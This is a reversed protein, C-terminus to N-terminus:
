FISIRVTLYKKPDKRIDGVLARLEAVAENMNEYLERDRLMRGATGEGQSLRGVLDDLRTSLSNLRNFLSADNILRGATGEGTNLKSAVQGVTDTAGGLSRALQDDRLLQGLTGEGANLRRTMTDLNTLASELARYARPDRILRALTGDGRRLEGAVASAAGVFAELDRYLADDTFLRGVTGKGARLDALLHRAEDLSETAREAVTRIQGATPVGEIFGGNELPRGGTSPTIEILPEGLLSLSGITARSETTIRPQHDRHITLGVEVQAGDFRIDSVTGVEVGALRVVAGSKLGQVDAFRTRLRYQQWFFGGAGGVVFILTAALTLALVAVIGIKLEAWVVSRTRPM